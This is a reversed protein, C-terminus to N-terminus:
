ASIGPSHRRSRRPQRALGRQVASPSAEMQSILRADMEAALDRGAQDVFSQTVNIKAQLDAIDEVLVQLVAHRDLDLDDTAFTQTVADVPTGSAKITPTFNDFRPIKLKDMGPGVESSFDMITPPVVMEATLVEQVRQSVIEEITADVQTLGSIADAM